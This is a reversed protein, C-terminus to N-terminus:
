VRSIGSWAHDITSKLKLYSVLKDYCDPLMFSHATGLIIIKFIFTM